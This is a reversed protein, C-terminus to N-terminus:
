WHTKNLRRFDISDFVDGNLILRAAPLEGSAIRDLLEALARAQCNASGLHVDSIIVADLMRPPGHPPQGTKAACIGKGRSPRIHLRRFRLPFQRSLPRSKRDGPGQRTENRPSSHWPPRERWPSVSSTRRWPSLPPRGSKKGM